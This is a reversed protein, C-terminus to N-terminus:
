FRILLSERWSLASTKVNIQDKPEQSNTHHRVSALYTFLPHESLQPSHSTHDSMNATTLSHQKCLSTRNLLGTCWHIVLEQIWMETLPSCKRQYKCLQIIYTESTYHCGVIPACISDSTLHLKDLLRLAHPTSQMSRRRDATTQIHVLYSM